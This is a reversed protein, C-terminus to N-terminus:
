PTEDIDISIDFVTIWIYENISLSPSIYVFSYLFDSADDLAM